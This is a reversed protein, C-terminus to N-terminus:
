IVPKRKKMFCQVLPKTPYRCKKMEGSYQLASHTKTSVFTIISSKSSQSIKKVSICEEKANHSYKYFSKNEM